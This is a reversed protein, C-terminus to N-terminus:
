STTTRGLELKVDEPVQVVPLDRNGTSEGDPGTEDETQGTPFLVDTVVQTGEM